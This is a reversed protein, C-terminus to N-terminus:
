SRPRRAALVAGPRAGDVYGCCDGVRSEVPRIRARSADRTSRRVSHPVVRAARPNTARLAAALAIARSDGCRVRRERTNISAIHAALRAPDHGIGDDFSARAAHENHVVFAVDSEHEAIQERV